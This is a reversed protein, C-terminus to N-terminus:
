GNALLNSNKKLAAGKEIRHRDRLVDRERQAFRALAIRFNQTFADGLHELHHFELPLFFFHRHVQAAAHFFADTERARDDTLWRANKVIFRSGSEIGDNGIRDISQDASQLLTEADGADDDRVVHLVSKM